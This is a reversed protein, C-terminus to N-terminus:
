IPEAQASQEDPDASLGTNLIYLDRRCTITTRRATSREDIDRRLAADAGPQPTRNKVRAALEDCLRLAEADHGTEHRFRNM